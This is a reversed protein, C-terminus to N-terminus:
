SRFNAFLSNSGKRTRHEALKRIAKMSQSVRLKAEIGMAPNASIEAYTLDLYEDPCFITDWYFERGGRATDTITGETEGVFVEVSMGDCYGVVAQAVAKEGSASLRRVFEDPGLADMM